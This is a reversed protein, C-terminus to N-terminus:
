EAAQQRGKKAPAEQRTGVKNVGYNKKVNDRRALGETKECLHAQRCPPM